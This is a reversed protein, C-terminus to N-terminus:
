AFEFVKLEIAGTPQADGHVLRRVAETTERSFTTEGCRVCVTAPIHEVLVMEGGIRFVENVLEESSDNSGCVHCRFM